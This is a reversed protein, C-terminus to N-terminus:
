NTVLLTFGAPGLLDMSKAGRRSFHGKDYDIDLARSQYGLLEGARGIRAKGAFMDLLDLQQHMFAPEPGWWSALLVCAVFAERM